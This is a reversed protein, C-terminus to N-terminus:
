DIGTILAKRLKSQPNFGEGKLLMNASKIFKLCDHREEKFEARGKNLTYLHHEIMDLNWSKSNKMM